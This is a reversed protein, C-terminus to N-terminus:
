TLSSLAAPPARPAAAGALPARRPLPIPAPRPRAGPRRPARAQRRRAVLEVVAEAGRMLLAILGGILLSAPIAWWGGEGFVGAPGAPHGPALAGELLEQSVFIALLGAAAVAWLSSFRTPRGGCMDSTPRALRFLFAGLAFAAVLTVVPVAGTLYAHGQRTLEGDAHSGFALQYRLQHVAWAGLPVLAAAYSRPLLRKM